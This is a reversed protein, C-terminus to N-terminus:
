GAAGRRPQTATSGRIMQDYVSETALWVLHDVRVHKRSPTTLRKVGGSEDAIGLGVGLRKAAAVIAASVSGKLIVGRPACDVFANVRDIARTWREDEVLVGVFRLPPEYFSTVEDPGAEVLGRPARRLVPWAAPNISTWAVPQGLPLLGLASLLDRDLIANVGLRRRFHEHPRNHELILDVLQGNRHVGGIREGIFGFAEHNVM